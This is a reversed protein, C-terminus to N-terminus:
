SFNSMGGRSRAKMKEIRAKLQSTVEAARRWSDDDTNLQLSDKNMHSSFTSASDPAKSPSSLRSLSRGNFLSSTGDTQSNSDISLSNVRSSLEGSTIRQNPLGESPQLNHKPEFPSASASNFAGAYAHKSQQSQQQGNYSTQQLKMMEITQELDRIKLKANELDSNARLIQTEKQKVMLLANTHDKTMIDIKSNLQSIDQTLTSKELDFREQSHSKHEQQELWQQKERRLSQLEEKERLSLGTNVKAPTNAPPTNSVLPRGTLGRGLSAVKSIDDNRKAPSTAGRKSPITSGTSYELSSKKLSSNIAPLSLKKASSALGTSLGNRNVPSKARSAASVSPKMKKSTSSTSSPPASMNTKVQVEEYFKTVKSRRNDDVKELFSNLEREGTIKMLTGIMETSAQRVPEQSDSLLKVGHDMISSIEPGKPCIKTAALCRQLYNTSAIKVQPTKHKMGNLTDEIIASLSSSQFIADMSNNLADAISAKKEKTREIMPALIIPQYRQFDSKLGKALFETCNAALQVVQINADKMCKAFLRVLDIYDDRPALKGTKELIAHVEELAEKRDKWKTSAMRPNLDSPIKSLVEVPDLLDYADFQPEDVNESEVDQMEVDGDGQPVRLLEEEEQQRKGIELQQALTFRIQKPTIDQVEEFSKKLDKQQVPKLEPFLVTELASGMWKYLEVTLKTTEARVNRDAHGFLKILSPIILKPSVVPRCGFNEVMSSLAAVCGAVLKPLRHTLFPLIDEIVGDVNDSLEVFWLLCETSKSKTGTRSSSLGKECLSSIVGANRLRLVNTSDGGFELYNLLSQIASEQAVVNADTVAKKFTDPRNNFRQFCEDQDNRSNQFQKSIEEYAELRVKWVKHVLREELPLGSYDPDDSM